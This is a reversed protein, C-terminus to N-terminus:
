PLPRTISLRARPQGRGMMQSFFDNKLPPISEMCILGINRGFQLWPKNNSFVRNFGHSIRSTLFQDRNQQELYHNLVTLSGLPQKTRWAKRLVSVLRASDRLALNFGQGAVPHLSHAANGMLVVSSRVQEKALSLQLPYSVRKGVRTFRGLRHGFRAQLKVVFQDDDLAMTHEIDGSPRTWILASTRAEASGGLPLLALPGDDTFREYAVCRHPKELGVNAVVAHQQYDHSEVGIGLDSRLSSDVGDAIIVLGTSITKKKSDDGDNILVSAGEAKPIIRTVQAPAITNIGKRTLLDATLCRGLWRNEVIYGLDRNGNEERSYTSMGPHGRDSIHVQHIPTSQSAISQWLGMGHLLDASTASLATSRGDFGPQYPEDAGDRLPYNEILCLKIDPLENVILLALTLGVMGGGVVVIDCDRSTSHTQREAM